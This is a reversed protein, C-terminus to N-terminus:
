LELMQWRDTFQVKEEEKQNQKDLKKSKRLITKECTSFLRFPEIKGPNVKENLMGLNISFQSDAIDELAKNGTNKFLETQLRLERFRGYRDRYHVETM